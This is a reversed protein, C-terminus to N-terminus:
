LGMNRCRVRTFMTRSVPAARRPSVDQVVITIEVSRVDAATATVAENADLYRFNLSTVNDVLVSNTTPDSDVQQLLQGGSLFYRIDELGTTDIMGNLDQDLTFHIDTANITIFGAGATDDPDLGAMRLDRVMFETGARLDQQVGAFVEQTTYSKSQASLYTVLAAMFLSLMGLAVLLEVLTLGTEGSRETGPAAHPKRGGNM